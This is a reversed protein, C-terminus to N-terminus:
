AGVSLKVHYGFHWKPFASCRQPRQSLHRLPARALTSLCFEVASNCFADNVGMDESTHIVDM